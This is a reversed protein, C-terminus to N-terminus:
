TRTILTIVAEWQNDKDRQFHGEFAAYQKPSVYVGVFTRKKLYCTWAGIKIKDDDIRRVPLKRLYPIAAQLLEDEKHKEGELMRILARRADEPELNEAIREPSECASSSVSCESPATKDSSGEDVM